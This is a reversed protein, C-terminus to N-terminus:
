IAGQIVLYSLWGMLIAVTFPIRNLQLEERKKLTVLSALNHVLVRGKGDLLTRLVGFLAGWVLSLVMVNLVATWGALIGFAAFLKMDGAGIVRLLVLPMLVIIGALFGMVAPLLSQMGGFILMVALAFVSCSIFLWNHFKRTRLDDIVGAGIIAGPAIITTAAVATDM